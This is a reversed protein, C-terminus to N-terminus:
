KTPDPYSLSRSVNTIMDHQMPASYPDRAGSHSAVEYSGDANWVVVFFGAMDKSLVTLAETETAFAAHVDNAAEAQRVEVTKFKGPVVTTEPEPNM